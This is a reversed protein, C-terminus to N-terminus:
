IRVEKFLKEVQDRAMLLENDRMRLHTELRTTKARLIGSLFEILASMESPSLPECLAAVQRRTASNVM